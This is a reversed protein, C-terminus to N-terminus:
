LKDFFSKMKKFFGSCNPNSNENSERDFEQLLEKQKATLNVPTEVNVNIYLDGRRASKMVPMGKARVNFRAGTQTGPKIEVENYAGDLSPISLKGGLAATTFKLPVECFLDNGERKYFRHQEVTVFLYLDGAKGGRIGAEGEGALRIKVGNDVGAPIDINLTRSVTKRGSGNCDRCPDVLVEGEGNCAQCTQEMIFFGQQVRVKGAGNCHRCKEVKGTKSGSGNCTKCSVAARFSIEKKLGAFAEELAISINYRLDSGRRLQEKAPGRAGGRMFDGFIGGFIDSLDDFDPAAGAGQGFGAGGGEFASHGFRDYAARKQDDKLVEYAENLEKFKHEADKNGQNRDPHYKMALKRYAKKIDEANAGKSVGLIEYYDKKVSM